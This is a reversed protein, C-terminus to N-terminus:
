SDFNPDPSAGFHLTTPRIEEGCIPCKSLRKNVTWKCICQRHYGHGCQLRKVHVKVSFEELCIGCTDNFISCQTLGTEEDNCKYVTDNSGYIFVLTRPTSFIRDLICVGCCCWKLAIFNGSPPNSNIEICEDVAITETGPACTCRCCYHHYLYIIIISIPILFILLGCVKELPYM